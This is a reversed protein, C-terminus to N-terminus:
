LVEERKHLWLTGCISDHLTVNRFIWQSHTLHLVHSIFHRMWDDGNMMCLAATCHRQQIAAIKSSVKGEMFEHWGIMDQSAAAQKTTTSM